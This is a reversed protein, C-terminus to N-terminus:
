EATNAWEQVKSILYDLAQQIREKTEAGRRVRWYKIVEDRAKELVFQTQLKDHLEHRCFDLTQLEKLFQEKSAALVVLEQKLSVVSSLLNKKEIECLQLEQELLAKKDTLEQVQVMLGDIQLQQEEAEVTKVPLTPVFVSKQRSPVPEDLHRAVEELRKLTLDESKGIYRKHLKGEVKRYGYWYDVETARGRSKEKRATFGQQSKAKPNYHFSSHYELWRRWMPTGIKIVEHDETELQNGKLECVKSM